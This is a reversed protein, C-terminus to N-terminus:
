RSRRTPQMALSVIMPCIEANPQKSKKQLENPAVQM